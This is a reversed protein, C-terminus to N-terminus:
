STFGHVFLTWIRGRGIRGAVLGKRSPRFAAGAAFPPALGIRGIIVQPRQATELIKRHRHRLLQRGPDQVFISPLGSGRSCRRLIGRVLRAVRRLRAVRQRSRGQRELAGLAPHALADQQRILGLLLAMM